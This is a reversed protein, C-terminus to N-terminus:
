VSINFEPSLLELFEDPNEKGEIYSKIAMVFELAPVGDFLRHDFSFNLRMEIIEEMAGQKKVWRSKMAGLALIMGTPRLKGDSEKTYPVLSDPSEGGLAGPNNITFTLDRLESLALKRAQARNLKDSIAAGLETFSLDEASHLVPVILGEQTQVAVGLNIHKFLYGDNADEDWYANIIKFNDLLLLRTSLFAFITNYSIRLGNEKCNERFNRLTSIDITVGDGAKPIKDHSLQMMSAITKRIKSAKLPERDDMIEETVESKERKGAEAITREVDARMVRGGSGTGKVTNIDIGHEAAMRRAVPAARVQVSEADERFIEQSPAGAEESESEESSPEDVPVESIEAESSSEEEDGDVEIYGLAPLLIRGFPTDESREPLEVGDKTVGVEWEKGEEYEIASITGTWSSQLETDVKDTEVEALLEGEAITDGVKKAWRKVTASEFDDEPNTIKLGKLEEVLFGFKIKTM